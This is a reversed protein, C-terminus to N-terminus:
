IIESFPDRYILPRTFYTRYIKKCKFGILLGVDDCTNIQTIIFIQVM